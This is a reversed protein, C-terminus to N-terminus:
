TAHLPTHTGPPYQSPIGPPYWPPYYRHVLSPCGCPGMDLSAPGPLGALAPTPPIHSRGTRGAGPSWGAPGTPGQPGERDGPGEELLM